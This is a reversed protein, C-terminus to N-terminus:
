SSGFVSESFGKYAQPRGHVGTRRLTWRLARKDPEDSADQLVCARRAAQELWRAGDLDQLAFAGHDPLEGTARPRADHEDIVVERLVRRRIEEPIDTRSPVLVCKGQQYEDFSPPLRVDPGPKGQARVVAQELREMRCLEDSPDPAQDALLPEVL